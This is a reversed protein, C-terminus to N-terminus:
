YASSDDGLLNFLACVDGKPIGCEYPTRYTFQQFKPYCTVCM